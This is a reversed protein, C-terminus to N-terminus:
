KAEATIRRNGWGELRSPDACLEEDLTRRDELSLFASERVLLFARYESLHGARLAAYTHPMEDTLALAMGLHQNGLNPADRRALAVESGLGKRRKDVPQHTNATDRRAILAATLVAQNAAATSKLAEWDSVQKLLGAEDADLDPLAVSEFM